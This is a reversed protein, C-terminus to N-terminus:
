LGCWAVLSMAHAGHWLAWASAGGLGFGALRLGWQRVAATSTGTLRSARRWLWPAVAVGPASAVAFAAMVAAGGLPTSALAALLLAAQLAACPWAVWGLGALGSRWPRAVNGVGQVPVAGGRQLAAPQRGTLVWWLGLGLLALHLGLWLPRLAPAAQTWDGLMAVSAAALAGASAYGLLRGGHFAGQSRGCGRTLAACPAGCMLACHPTAALGMALAAAILPAATWIM